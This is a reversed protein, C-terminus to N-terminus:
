HLLVLSCTATRMLLLRRSNVGEHLLSVHRTTAYLPVHLASALGLQGALMGKIM